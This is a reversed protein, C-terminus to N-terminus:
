SKRRLREDHLRKVARYLAWLQDSGNPVSLAYFVQLAGNNTDSTM